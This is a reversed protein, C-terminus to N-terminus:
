TARNGRRRQWLVLVLAGLLAGALGGAANTVYDMGSCTRGPIRTQALEIVAPLLLVALVVPWARRIALVAFFALPVLMVTNLLAEPSTSISGLQARLQSPAGLICARAGGEDRHGGPALTLALVVSLSLFALLTPIASWQTCRVVPWWLLLSVALGVAAYRATDVTLPTVFLATRLVHEIENM